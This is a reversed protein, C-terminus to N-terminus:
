LSLVILELRYIVIQKEKRRKNVILKGFVEFVAVSKAKVTGYFKSVFLM